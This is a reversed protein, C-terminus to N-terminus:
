EAYAYHFGKIKDQGGRTFDPVEVPASGHEISLASLPGICCWEALDYVDMDLPLGHNLCYILRYDMMFDMGGHGGVQKAVEGIEKILPHTYAEVLQAYQEDNLYSDGDYRAPVDVVDKIKEPVFSYGPRPYKGAFGTTGVIQYMRNYPRPTMVGHQVQITRGKATRILTTTHDGNAFEDPDEVDMNRAKVLGPGTFADTEMAVLTKLQDGRHIDFVQCVPGFGHTPYVDGKHTRNFELRWNNWYEDWFPTLCHIYAGEGHYITGFLGHQAMNLTNLEFFDYCCNELQMCHKRTRESTNILAWIEEMSTASPVEIAVHKGHEMAYLAVPTHHIWDTCIYVLDIDDRECLQKYVETDGSYAAAAPMGAAALKAQAKEVNAPVVDCLAAIRATPLHLYRNIAGSGRMGLGVFGVRVTDIPPAAFALMDTQGAPRKPVDVRLLNDNKQCCGALLLTLFTLILFYRTRMHYPNQTM